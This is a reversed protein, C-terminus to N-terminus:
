GSKESRRNKSCSASVPIDGGYCKSLVNKRMAAVTERAVVKGGIAAQIPVEFMQRPILKKSSRPWRAGARWRRTTHWSSHSRTSRSTTSCSRSSQSIAKAIGSVDYDLSAYGKTRSKLSDFFDVIVEILPMEYTVIVRGDHLYEM